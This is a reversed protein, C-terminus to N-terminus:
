ARKGSRLMRVTPVTTSVVDIIHCECILEIHQSPGPYKDCAITAPRIYNLFNSESYVRALNGLEFKESDSHAAYSENSVAYTIYSDWLIEFLRTHEGTTVRYGEGMSVGAFDIPTAETSAVGEEILLKLANEEPETIERLFLYRCSNLEAFLEALIGASAV